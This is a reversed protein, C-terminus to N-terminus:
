KKLAVIEIADGRKVPKVPYVESVTRAFREGDGARFQGSVHIAAAAPSIKIQVISRLNIQRAADALSTDNFRLLGDVWDPSDKNTESETVGAVGDREV